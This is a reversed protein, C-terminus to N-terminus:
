VSLKVSLTTENKIPFSFWSEQPSRFLSVLGSLEHRWGTTGTLCWRVGKNAEKWFTARNFIICQSSCPCGFGPCCFRWWAICDHDGLHRAWNHAKCGVTYSWCHLVSEEKELANDQRPHTKWQKGQPNEGGGGIKGINFSCNREIM